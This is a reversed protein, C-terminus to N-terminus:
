VKKQFAQRSNTKNLMLIAILFFGLSVLHQVSGFLAVLSGITMEGREVLTFPFFGVGRGSALRDLWHGLPFRLLPMVALPMVVLPLGLWLFGQDNTRRYKQVLGAVIALYLAAIAVNTAIM